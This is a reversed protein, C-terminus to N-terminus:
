IYDTNIVIIPILPVQYIFIYYNGNLFDHHMYQHVNAMFGNLGLVRELNMMKDRDRDGFGKM